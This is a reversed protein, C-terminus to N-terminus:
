NLMVKIRNWYKPAYVFVDDATYPKNDKGAYIQILGDIDFSLTGGIVQTSGEPVPNLTIPNVKIRILNM